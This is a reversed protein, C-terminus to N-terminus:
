EDDEEEQDKTDCPIETPNGVPYGPRPRPWSAWVALVDSFAEFVAGIPIGYLRLTWKM